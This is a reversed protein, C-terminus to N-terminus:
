RWWSSRRLHSLDSRAPTPLYTRLTKVSEECVVKRVSYDAPGDGESRTMTRSVFGCAQARREPVSGRELAIALRRTKMFAWRAILLALWTATTADWLWRATHSYGRGGEGGETEPSISIDSWVDLRSSAFLYRGKASMSSQRSVERRVRMEMVDSNSMEDVLVVCIAPAKVRAKDCM